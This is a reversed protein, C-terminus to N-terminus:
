GCRAHGEHMRLIIMIVKLNEHKQAPTVILVMFKYENIFYAPSSRSGDVNGHRKQLIHIRICDYLSVSSSPICNDFSSQVVVSATCVADRIWKAFSQEVSGGCPCVSPEPRKSTKAVTKMKPKLSAFPM